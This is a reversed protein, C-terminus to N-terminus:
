PKPTPTPTPTATPTPTITLTPSPTSTTSTPSATPSKTPTTTPTVDSKKGGTVVVIDFDSDKSLHSSDIKIEDFTTKLADKVEIATDDFGDKATINTVTNNFDKANDTKINDSNFGAKKLAEVVIGAQGETGTGNLVQIKVSNKDIKPKETPSPEKNEVVAIKTQETKKPQRLMFIGGALAAVILIVAIVMAMKKNKNGGQPSSYTSITEIM